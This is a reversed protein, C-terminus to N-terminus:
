RRLGGHHRRQAPRLGGPRAGAISATTAPRTRGMASRCTACPADSRLVWFIGNLVRRDDVREVGRSKNPLLPQIVSWEFETLDYRM